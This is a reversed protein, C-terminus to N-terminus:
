SGDTFTESTVSYDVPASVSVIISLNGSNDHLTLKTIGRSGGNSGVGSSGAGGNNTTIVQNTGRIRLQPLTIAGTGTVGILGLGSVTFRPLNVTGTGQINLEGQNGSGAVTFQPLQIAGTGSHIQTGGGTSIMEPLLINGTGSIITPAVIGVGAVQFQPITIEPIGGLDDIILTGIASVVAQPLVPNGTGTPSPNPVTGSGAVSLQPISIAGSGTIEVTGSGAVSFQPITVAGTGTESTSAQFLYGIPDSAFANFDATNAFEGTFVGAFMVKMASSGISPIGGLTWLGRDTSDLLGSPSFVRDVGSASVGETTYYSSSNGSPVCPIAVVFATNGSLVHAATAGCSSSPDRVVIESSATSTIQIGNTGGDGSINQSVLSSMEAVVLVVTVATTTTNTIPPLTVNLRNTSGDTQIFGITDGGNWVRNGISLTGTQTLGSGITNGSVFDKITTLNDDVGILQLFQSPIGTTKLTYAM